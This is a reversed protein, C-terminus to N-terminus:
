DDDTKRELLRRLARKGYHIRSRVTGPLCGAVRAIEDYSMEELFRLVLVERQDPPLQDLAAHIRAADETTFDDDPSEDAVEGGAPFPEFRRHKRLMGFSRDRAIRYLWARFAVPEALKIVHRYVDLWVDQLVDDAGDLSGLLKRVFYRVRPSYREMLEALATEDGTQCRIVLLREYIQETPDTM